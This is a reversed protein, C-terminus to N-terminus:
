NVLSPLIYILANMLGGFFIGRKSLGPMHSEFFIVPLSRSTGLSRDQYGLAAMPEAASSDRTACLSLVIESRNSFSTRMCAEKVAEQGNQMSIFEDSYAFDPMVGSSSEASWSWVSRDVVSDKEVRSFSASSYVLSMEAVGSDKGSANMLDSFCFKSSRSITM